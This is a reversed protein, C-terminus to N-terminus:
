PSLASRSREALCLASVSFSGTERWRQTIQRTKALSNCQSDSFILMKWIGTMLGLYGPSGSGGPSTEGFPKQFFHFEFELSSPKGPEGM